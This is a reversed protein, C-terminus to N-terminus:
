RKKTAKRKPPGAKALYEKLPDWYSTKWGSSYDALQEAPVKLHLMELETGGNRTTLTLELRSVPYGDPWETTKWEQVIRKGKVLELNKGIIYGGWATFKAGKKASTTAPSGTFDAHKKPDLLADYIEQPTAKFFVKQEIIGFKLSPV